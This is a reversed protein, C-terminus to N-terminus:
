ELVAERYTLLLTGVGKYKLVNDGPMFVIDPFIYTGTTINYVIDGFAINASAAVGNRDSLKINPVVPLRGTNTYARSVYSNPSDFGASHKKETAAYKWPNCTATVTVAAHAMNNYKRAVHLRGTVYHDPDDPLTINVRMGDLSNVMERIITERSLRDGTSLELTASLERDYYRPLGDTLATSLDWSGDGGPKDVFNTKQEAPSLQWAALTWGHAATDYDGFIIKRKEM